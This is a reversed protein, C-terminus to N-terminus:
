GRRDRRDLDRARHRRQHGRGGGRGCRDRRRLRACYGPRLLLRADPRLSGLKVRRAGAAIQTIVAPIVARASQRPGFTNFPRVVVVPTGFSAHFSLALQDAAAKTAAYPSQPHLRHEEAIPVSQATGYVESTSTQMLRRVDLARASQLVNLTGRINTDLYNDPAHYSYPIGILAALHM